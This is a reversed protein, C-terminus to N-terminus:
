VSERNKVYFAPANSPKNGGEEQMKDIVESSGCHTDSIQRYVKEQSEFYDTPIGKAEL